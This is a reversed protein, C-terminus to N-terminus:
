VMAYIPEPLTMILKVLNLYSDVSETMADLCLVLSTARYSIVGGNSAAISGYYGENDRDVTGIYGRYTLKHYEM